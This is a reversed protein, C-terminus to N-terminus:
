KCRWRTGRKDSDVYELVVLSGYTRGSLDDSNRRKRHILENNLCGCSKTNGTILNNYAVYVTNGCDCKCQWRGDIYKVAVLRSFRRGTIDYKPKGM